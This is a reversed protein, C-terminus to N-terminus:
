TRHTGGSTERRAREARRCAAARGSVGGSIGCVRVLPLSRHSPQDCNDQGGGGADIRQHLQAARDFREHLLHRGGDDLHDDGRVRRDILAVARLGIEHHTPLPADPRADDDVGAAVDDRVAVDDVASSRNLNDDGAFLRAPSAGDVRFDDADRTLDIERQQLDVHGSQRRQRQRRGAANPLPFQDKREATRFPQAIRHRHADDAGGIPLGIRIRRHHVDLGVRWDVVAVATSREDVYLALEDADVREDQRVRAAAFPEAERNRARQHRQCIRLQPLEAM